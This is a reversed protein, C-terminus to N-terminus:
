GKEREREREREQKRKRGGMRVSGVDDVGSGKIM